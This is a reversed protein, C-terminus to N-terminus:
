YNVVVFKRCQSGFQVIMVLLVLLESLQGLPAFEVDDVEHIHFVAAPYIRDLQFVDVVKSGCGFGCFGQKLGQLFALFFSASAAVLEELGGSDVEQCGTDIEEAVPPFFGVVLVTIHERRFLYLVFLGFPHDGGPTYEIGSALFYLRGVPESLIGIHRM